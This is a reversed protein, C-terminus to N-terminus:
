RAALWAALERSLRPDSELRQRLAAIRREVARRQDAPVSDRLQELKGIM